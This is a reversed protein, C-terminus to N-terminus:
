SPASTSGSPSTWPLCRLDEPSRLDAPCRRSTTPRRKLHLSLRRRGDGPLVSDDQRHRRDDADVSSDGRSQKGLADSEHLQHQETGALEPFGKRLRTCTPSVQELFPKELCMPV